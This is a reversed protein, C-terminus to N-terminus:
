EPAEDPRTFLMLVNVLSPPTVRYRAGREEIKLHAPCGRCRADWRTGHLTYRRTITWQHEHEM